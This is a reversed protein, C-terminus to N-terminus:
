PPPRPWCRSSRAPPWPARPRARRRHRAPLGGRGVPRRHRRGAGPDPARLRPQHTPPRSRGRNPPDAAAAACAPVVLVAWGAVAVGLVALTAFLLTYGGVAILVGGLLPGLTYGLGKWAGYRGFGRGQGAPTLRSSWSGPPRPSRPRRPVRASGPWGSGRPTAPSWSRPPPPPSRSCGASCCRVPASATPWRGSCRNSCSKPVTTSRWCCAWPWCRRMSATPTAAWAPPSATRVSRPSSGPRM